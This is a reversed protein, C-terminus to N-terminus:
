YFYYHFGWCLGRRLWSLLFNLWKRGFWSALLRFKVDNFRTKMKNKKFFHLRNDITREWIKLLILNLHNFNKEVTPLAKKTGRTAAQLQDVHHTVPSYFWDACAVLRGPPQRPFRFISPKKCWGAHLYYLLEAKLLYRSCLTLILCGLESTDVGDM